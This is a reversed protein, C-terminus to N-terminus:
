YLIQLRNCHAHNRRNYKKQWIPGVWGYLGRSTGVSKLFKLGSRSGSPPKLLSVSLFKVPIYINLPCGGVSALTREPIVAMYRGHGNTLALPKIRTDSDEGPTIEAEELATLHLFPDSIRFPDLGSIDFSTRAHQRRAHVYLTCRTGNPPITPIFTNTDKGRAMACPGEM